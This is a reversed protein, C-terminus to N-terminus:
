ANSRAQKADNEAISKALRDIEASVKHVFELLKTRESNPPGYELLQPLSSEDNSIDIETNLRGLATRINHISRRLLQVSERDYTLLPRNLKSPLLGAINSSLVHNLVLFSYILTSNRQKRKPESLMRNFAAALNATSIYLEKRALKYEILPVDASVRMALLKSMYEANAALVKKMYAYVNPYEWNPFLFYTSIFCLTCAIATDILREEAVNLFGLGLLNFLILVYPTTFIVMVTYNLRMFTYTGLLFFSLLVFLADRDRVFYICAVGILGGIITGWFRQINREHSLSFNPKLIIIITLLIWHSYSGFSVIIAILYGATCTIMMRLAHRFVASELNLNAAFVAFSIETHSVFRSYDTKNSTSDGAKEPRTYAGLENIQTGIKRLNVIIKKLVFGNATFPLQEARKRFAELDTIFDYTMVYSTNAQIALGTNDLEEALTTIIRSVEDLIGSEAFDSRLKHYDYWTMLVQEYIDVVASFSLVLMKGTRTQEKLLEKNKFLLERVADQKESVIVQQSLLKRYEDEFRTRHDYLKAKLELFVSIEHICDGLARQAPRYPTLRYLLLSITVYWVCGALILLSDTVPSRLESEPTLRLVMVLLSATGIAGARNGFVSLMSFVFAASSILIGLLLASGNLLGTMLAMWFVCATCYLMGNRKHNLPGPMDSLSVCLAGLAIALGTGMMKLQAFLIVPLIIALTTRVGDALHQSFVFYKLQRTPASAM